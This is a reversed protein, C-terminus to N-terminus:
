YQGDVDALLLYFNGEGSQDKELALAKARVENNLLRRNYNSNLCNMCIEREIAPRGQFIRRVWGQLRLRLPIEETQKFGIETPKLYQIEPRVFHTVVPESDGDQEIM